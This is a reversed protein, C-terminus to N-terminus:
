IGTVQPSDAKEELRIAVFMEADSGGGNCNDQLFPTLTQMKKLLINKATTSLAVWWMKKKKRKKSNVCRDDSGCCEIVGYGGM